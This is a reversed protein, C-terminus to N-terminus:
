ELRNSNENATHKEDIPKENPLVSWGVRMIPIECELGGTWFSFQDCRYAWRDINDFAFPILAYQQMLARDFKQAYQILDNYTKAKFIQTSLMLLKKDDFGVINKLSSITKKHPDVFDSLNFDSILPTMPNFVHVIFDFDHNQIRRDYMDSPLIKIQLRIGLRKLSRQFHLAIKELRIDKLLFRLIFINGNSDKRMGTNPDIFYGADQLLQHAKNLQERQNGFSDTKSSFLFPKDKSAFVTNEFISETRKLSKRFILRNLTEFDFSLLLAQRVRIDSLYAKRLNIVIMRSFVPRKHEREFFIIKNQSLLQSSYSTHRNLWNKPDTEFFISIKGSLFAWFLSYYFKYYRCQIEDFNYCGKNISLDKGWYNPNRKYTIQKGTDFSSIFYPGSGKLPIQSKKFSQMKDLESAPFIKMIALQFPIEPDYELKISNNPAIKKKLDHCQLFQNKPFFDFCISHKSLITIKKISEVIKKFKLNGDKKYKLILFNIDHATIEKNDQFRSKPDIFFTISSFDDKCIYSKAILPHL